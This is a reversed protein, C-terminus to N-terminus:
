KVGARIGNEVRAVAPESLAGYRNVATVSIAQPVPSDRGARITRSTQSSGPLIELTWQDGIKEQFLWLAAPEGASKWAADIRGGPNRVLLLPKPPSERSLWPSAPVLAPNAYARALVGAIRNTNRLISTAHWWVEGSAGSQRRTM